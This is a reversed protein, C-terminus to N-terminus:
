WSRNYRPSAPSSMGSSAFAFTRARMWDAPSALYSPLDHSVFAFDVSRRSVLRFGRAFSPSEARSTDPNDQAEGLRSLSEALEEYHRSDYYHCVPGNAVLCALFALVAAIWLPFPGFFVGRGTEFAQLSMLLGLAMASYRIYFRQDEKQEPSQNRRWSIYALAPSIDRM